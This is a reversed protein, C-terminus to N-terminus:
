HFKYLINLLEKLTPRNDCNKVNYYYKTDGNLKLKVVRVPNQVLNNLSQFQVKKIKTLAM